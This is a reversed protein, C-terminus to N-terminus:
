GLRALTSGIEGAASKEESTWDLFAYRPRSYQQTLFPLKLHPIFYTPALHHKDCCKHLRAFFGSVTLRNCIFASTFLQSLYRILTQQRKKDAGSSRTIQDLPKKQKGLFRPPVRSRGVTLGVFTNMLFYARSIVHWEFFNLYNFANLLLIYLVWRIEISRNNRDSKKPM